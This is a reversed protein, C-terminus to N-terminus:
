FDELIQKSSLIRSSLIKRTDLDYKIKADAIADIIQGREADKKIIIYKIDRPEFSLRYKEGIRQNAEILREKNTYVEPRILIDDEKKAIPVYRWESEDYFRIKNQTRSSYPKIYAELLSFERNNRNNRLEELTKTLDSQQCLYILPNLGRKIGWMKSMGLAYRGYLKMHESIVSLPLDCFCVMPVAHKIEFEEEDELLLDNLSNELHYQPRFEHKLIGVLNDISPTFHFLTNASISM